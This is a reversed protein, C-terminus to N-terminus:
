TESANAWIAGIRRWAESAGVQALTDPDGIGVRTLAEGLSPGINVAAQVPRVAHGVGRPSAKAGRRSPRAVRVRHARAIHNETM